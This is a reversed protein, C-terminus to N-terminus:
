QRSTTPHIQMGINKAWEPNFIAMYQAMQNSVPFTKMIWKAPHASDVMDDDQFVTGWLDQGIAGFVKEVDTIIQLSPFLSGSLIQTLSTPNYYFSMEQTINQTSRLFYNYAATVQPDEDPDPAMAKAGLYFSILLSALIVDKIQSRINQRVLDMFETETMELRKNYKAFYDRQKEEFLKRMSDVGGQTALLMNKLSKLSSFGEKLVIKGVMRMKGWEYSDTGINHRLGQTRQSVLRPIWNKFMMMSNTLVHFKMPIPDNSTINGALTKGVMQVLSRYAHISEESAEIKAVGNEIKVFNTIGYKDKLEKIAKEQGAEFQRREEPTSVYKKQYEDTKKYYERVNQLKGNIVVANNMMAIFNVYQVLADAKRMMSMIVESITGKTLNSLSMHHIRRSLEEDGMPLFTKILALNINEKGGIIKHSLYQAEATFFESNTFFKNGTVYAQFHGGFLQSLSSSINLGLIGMTKFTNALDITKTLSFSNGKLENSITPIESNTWENFKTVNKNYKDILKESVKGILAESNPTNIYKQHYWTNKIFDRLLQSNAENHEDPYQLANEILKGTTGVKLSQKDKELAYLINVLGEKDKQYGYQVVQKAYIMINKFIDDSVNEYDRYIDQNADVKDRGIDTIFYKPIVDKMEGTLPDFNGFSGSEDNISLSSIVNEMMNWSGGFVLREALSKRIFPIFNRYQQATLYGSKRARANIDSIFNYLRLVAPDAEIKKYEESKWSELPHQKVFIYNLFPHESKLNTYREIQLREKRRQEAREKDSGLFVMDNLQALKSTRYENVAKTFDEMNINAKIWKIDKDEIKQKLTTYFDRSYKDILKNTRNKGEYKEILKQYEHAKLGKSKFGKEIDILEDVLRNTELETKNRVEESILWYTKGVQTTISSLERFSRDLGAIAPEIANLDKINRKEGIFKAVFSARLDTITKMEDRIEAGLRKSDEINKANGEPDEKFYDRFQLDLDKYIKMGDLLNQLIISDDNIEKDTFSTIPQGKYKENHKQELIKTNLLLTEVNQFLPKFNKRVQLQQIAKFIANLQSTKVDRRGEIVPSENISKYLANLQQIHKDIEKIGTKEDITPVPLLFDSKEIDSNVRGITLNRFTKRGQNHNMRIIIPIGRVQGFDKVGYADHLIQKVERLYDQIRERQGKSMARAREAYDSLFEWTKVNVQGEPTIAIFDVKTAKNHKPDFIVKNYLFTTGNPYTKLQQQVNLFMINYPADYNAIHPKETRDLPMIRMQGNEDVLRDLINKIDLRGKDTLEQLKADETRGEDNNFSRKVLVDNVKFKGDQETIHSDSEKIKNLITDHTSDGVKALSGTGKIETPTFEKKGLLIDAAQEFPDFGPKKFANKFFDLIKQWTKRIWSQKEESESPITWAEPNADTGDKYAAIEAILKGIAEEKLKIIDPKGDKLYEKNKFYNPDQRVQDWIKYSGIKNFLEKYLPNNSQKLMEVLIHAGEEGLTIDEKGDLIQMTKHITNVVAYVLSNGTLGQARALSKAEEPMMDFIRFGARRTFDKVKDIAKPSLKAASFSDGQGQKTLSDGEKTVHEPNNKYYNDIYSNYYEDILTRSPKIIIANGDSSKELHAINDKYSKNIKNAVSEAIRYARSGGWDSNRVFLTHDNLQIIKETTETNLVSKIIGNRIDHRCKM